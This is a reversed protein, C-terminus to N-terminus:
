VGDDLALGEHSARAAAEVVVERPRGIVDKLSVRFFCSCRRLSLVFWSEMM